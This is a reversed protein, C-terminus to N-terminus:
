AWSERKGEPVRRGSPSSGSVEPSSWGTEGGLDVIDDQNTFLNLKTENINPNYIGLHVGTQKRIVYRWPKGSSEPVYNLSHALYHFTHDNNKDSIYPQIYKHVYTRLFFIFKHSFTRYRTKGVRFQSTVM